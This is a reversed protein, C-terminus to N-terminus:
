SKAEAHWTQAFGKNIFLQEQAIKEVTRCVNQFVMYLTLFM